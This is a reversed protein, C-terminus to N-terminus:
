IQEKSPTKVLLLILSTGTPICQHAKSCDYRETPLVHLFMLVNKPSTGVALLCMIIIAYSFIIFSLNQVIFSWPRQADGRVHVDTYM